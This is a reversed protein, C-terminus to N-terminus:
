RGSTGGSTGDVDERGLSGARAASGHSGVM